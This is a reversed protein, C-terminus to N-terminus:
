AEDEHPIDALETLRKAIDGAPDPDSRPSRVPPGYREALLALVEQCIPCEEDIRHQHASM